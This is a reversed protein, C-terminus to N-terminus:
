NIHVLAGGDVPLAVGTIFNAEDSALFLAANAVDWATGMRHRLPVRADRAAAVEARSKGSARARTDVAMPTDMLGPLIVNARVGYAANQIAVQQTFAILGAKSAKYAVNPYNEWAAVSSITIIVGARQVRMLPLVHKCAMIAGRLNVTTLRDFAAETIAELPADGGAISVGVNYHLIDVRGWRRRAAEVMKALSSEMTVDAAFAACEGSARAMAVTEEASALNNDVALVKAGEQAFRLVTARGNGLGEGPSQGAGVVIAIKDKLRM